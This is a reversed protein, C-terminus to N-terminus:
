EEGQCRTSSSNLEEQDNTPIEQPMTPMRIMAILQCFAISCLIFRVHWYPFVLGSIFLVIYSSILIEIKSRRTLGGRERYPVVYKKYVKRSKIWEESRKSSKAFLTAALLIFPTTPLLPVVVGIMGLVFCIWGLVYLVKKKLCGAGEIYVDSKM